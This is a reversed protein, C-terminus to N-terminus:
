CAFLRLNSPLGNCITQYVSLAGQLRGQIAQPLLTCCGLLQAPLPLIAQM